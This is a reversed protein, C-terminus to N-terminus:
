AVEEETPENAYIYADIITNFAKELKKCEEASKNADQYEGELYFQLHNLTDLHKHYEIDLMNYKGKTKYSVWEAQLDQSMPIKREDRVNNYGAYAIITL